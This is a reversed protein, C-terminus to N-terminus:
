AARRGQNIIWVSIVDSATSSPNQTALGVGVRNHRLDPAPKKPIM